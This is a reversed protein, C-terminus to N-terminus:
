DGVSPCLEESELPSTRRAVSPPLSAAALASFAFSGVAFLISARYSGTLDRLYGGLFAGAAPGVGMCVLTAMGLIRGLSLRGFVAGLYGVIGGPIMAWYTALLACALVGFILSYRTAILLLCAIIGILPGIVLTIKRGRAEHSTWRVIRDGVIGTGPMAVIGALGIVSYLYVSKSLSMGLDDVFYSVMQSWVLYEAVLCGIFVLIVAWIAYTSFADGATWLTEVRTSRHPEKTDEGFPAVGYDEPSKRGLLTALLMAVLVIGGLMRAAGRWGYIPIVARTALGLLVQAMPAGIFAVGWVKAYDKGVFWKRVSVTSTIWLMGTGIGGLIGYSVLYAHFNHVGSTVWFGLPCFVAALFYCPRTGFRDIVFGSLFATVAYVSMLVSYGASVQSASWHMDQAIPIKLVAFTARFGFLCFVALWSAMVAMAATRKAKGNSL